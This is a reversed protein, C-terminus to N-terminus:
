LLYADLTEKIISLPNLDDLIKLPKVLHKIKYAINFPTFEKELLYEYFYNKKFFIANKEQHNHKVYPSPIFITPIQCRILEYSTSGGARSFFLNSLSLYEEVNLYPIIQVNSPLILNKVNSVLIYDYEKLFFPSYFYELTKKVLSSSSLSGFMFIIKNKAKTLHRKFRTYSPNGSIICKHFYNHKLPYSLFIKKAKLLLIKNADGLVVNEELLFLPKNKCFFSILFTSLGGSSIYADYDYLEKKCKNIEKYFAKSFLNNKISKNITLLFADSPFINEEFANKRGLYSVQYYRSLYNGLSIIPYVHGGTSSGSLLIKKNM